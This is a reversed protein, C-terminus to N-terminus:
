AVHSGWEDVRSLLRYPDRAIAEADTLLYAYGHTDDAYYDILDRLGEETKQIDQELADFSKIEGLDKRGKLQWYSIRIENFNIQQAPKKDGRVRGGPAVEGQPPPSVFIEFGGQQVMLAEILLQAGEGSQMQSKTPIVGTKYDIIDVVGDELVDIRDAKAKIKYRGSPTELVLQGEIEMFSRRLLAKRKEEEAEIWAAIRTFRPWWFFLIHPFVAFAEFATKGLLSLALSTKKHQELVHHILTGFRAAGPENSLPDLSKLGLIQRAYFAYPNRVLGEIHTAAMERPRLDLAPRPYPVEAPMIDRPHDLKRVWALYPKQPKLVDEGVAQRLIHLFRSPQQLKGDVSEARTLYVKPSCVSQCFDLANLGIRRELPPLGLKSRMSRNIWPDPRIDRPWTGENLGALIVMETRQLRAEISGWVYIQRGTKRQSRYTAQKLLHKLSEAYHEVALTPLRRTNEMIDRLSTFLEAYVPDQQEGFLSFFVSLHAGLIDSFGAKKRSRVEILPQLAEKLVACLPHDKLQMGLGDPSRLEKELQACKVKQLGMMKLVNLVEVTGWDSDLVALLQMFAIGWRTGWLSLGASNDVDLGWRSLFTEVFRILTQDSTIIAIDGQDHLWHDKVLLAILQAEERLHQCEFLTVDQVTKESPLHMFAEQLALCQDAIRGEGWTKIEERKWGQQKLLVMLAHQPHTPSEAKQRWLEEPTEQDLGSLIVSGRPLSTVAKMLRSTMSFTGTSGAVIVPTQPPNEAFATLIHSFLLNRYMARDIAKEERLITPWNHTVVQLFSLTAQWHHAFEQPVLRALDHFAIEEVQLQDFFAGLSEALSLAHDFTSPGQDQRSEGWKLILHALLFERRLGSIPKQDIMTLPPLFDEIDELGFEGLPILKPMFALSSKQTTVLHRELSLCARKTPLFIRASALTLPDDGYRDILGATLRQLFNSGHPIVYLSM